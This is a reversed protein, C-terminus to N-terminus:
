IFAGAFISALAGSAGGTVATAADRPAFKWVAFIIAIVACIVLIHRTEKRM